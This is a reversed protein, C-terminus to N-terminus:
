LTLKSVGRSPPCAARCWVASDSASHSLDCIAEAHKSTTVDVIEHHRDAGQVTAMGTSRGAAAWALSPLRRPRPHVLALQQEAVVEPQIAGTRATTCEGAHGSGVQALLAVEGSDGFSSAEGAGGALQM